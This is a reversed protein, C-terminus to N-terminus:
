KINGLRAQLIGIQQASIGEAKAKDIAKQLSQKELSKDGAQKAADAQMQYVDWTIYNDPIKNIAEALIDEAKQSQHLNLADRAAAVYLNLATAYDKNNIINRADATEATLFQQTTPVKDTQIKHSRVHYYVFAGLLVVIVTLALLGRKKTVRSHLGHAGRSMFMM